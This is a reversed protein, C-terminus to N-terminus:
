VLWPIPIIIPVQGKEDPRMMATSRGLVGSIGYTVYGIESRNQIENSCALEWFRETLERHNVASRVSSFPHLTGSDESCM